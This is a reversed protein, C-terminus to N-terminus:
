RQGQHLKELRAATEIVFSRRDLNLAVVDAKERVLQEWLEAGEVVRRQAVANEGTRTGASTGTSTGTNAGAEDGFVAARVDRALEDCVLECFMEFKQGAAAPALADALQHIKGGAMGGGAGPVLQAVPAVLTDGEDSALTLVRRVSGEARELVQSWAEGKPGLVDSRELAQRAAAELDDRELPQLALHRCRSRITPLLRGPESSILFFVCRPPPEELSKLLANAANLNLEDVADVVVVRWLGQGSTHGFFDRLRRVEDITISAKFRKDKLDYPRRVVLLGPHSLARVQRAGGAGERVNLSKAEGGEPAELRDRADSLAYRAFRYALSAKGIGTAGTLLWAHHLKESHFADYLIHEARQHGYLTETWRPHAFGDLCDAEPAEEGQQVTASRARATTTKTRAKPKGRAPTKKRPAKAKAM